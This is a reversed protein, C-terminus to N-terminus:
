QLLVMKCSAPMNNGGDFVACSFTQLESICTNFSPGVALTKTCDISVSLADLCERQSPPPSVCQVLRGCFTSKFLECKARAADREAPSPLGGMTGGDSGCGIVVFLFGGLLTVVLRMM